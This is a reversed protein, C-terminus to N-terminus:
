SHFGMNSIMIQLFGVRVILIECGCKPIPILIYLYMYFRGQTRPFGFFVWDEVRPSSFKLSTLAGLEQPLGGIGM